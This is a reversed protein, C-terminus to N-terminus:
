KIVTAIVLSPAVLTVHRHTGLLSIIFGRVRGCCYMRSSSPMYYYKVLILIAIGVYIFFCTVHYRNNKIVLIVM